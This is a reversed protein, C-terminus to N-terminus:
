TRRSYYTHYCLIYMSGVSKCFHLARVKYILFSALAPSLETQLLVECVQTESGNCAWNGRGAMHASCAHPAHLCALLCACVFCLLGLSYM